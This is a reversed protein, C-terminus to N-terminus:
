LALDQLRMTLADDVSGGNFNGGTGAPPNAPVGHVQQKLVALEAQLAAITQYAEHLESKLKKAAHLKAETTTRERKTNDRSATAYRTGDKRRRAEKVALAEEALFLTALFGKSIIKYYRPYACIVELPFKISTAPASNDGPEVVYIEYEVHESVKSTIISEPATKRRRANLMAPCLEAFKELSSNLANFIAAQKGRLEAKEESTAAKEYTEVLHKMYGYFTAHGQFEALLHDRHGKVTQSFEYEREAAEASRTPADEVTQRFEQEREEGAAGASSTPASNENPNARVTFATVAQLSDLYNAM